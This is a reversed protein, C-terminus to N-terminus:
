LIVFSKLSEHCSPRAQYSSLTSAALPDYMMVRALNQLQRPMLARIIAGKMSKLDARNRLLRVARFDEIIREGPTTRRRIHSGSNKPCLGDALVELGRLAAELQLQREQGELTEVDGVIVGARKRLEEAIFAVSEWTLTEESRAQVDHAHSRLAAIELGSPWGMTRQLYLLCELVTRSVGRGKRDLGQFHLLLSKWRGRRLLMFIPEAIFLVPILQVDSDSDREFGCEVRIAGWAAAGQNTQLMTDDRLVPVSPQFVYFQLSAPSTADGAKRQRVHAAEALEFFEVVELSYASRPRGWYEWLLQSERDFQTTPGDFVVGPRLRVLGRVEAGHAHVSGRQRAESSKLESLTSLVDSAELSERFWPPEPLWQPVRTKKSSRTKREGNKYVALLLM